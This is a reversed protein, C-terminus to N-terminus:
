NAAVRVREIGTFVTLLTLYFVGYSLVVLSDNVGLGDFLTDDGVSGNLVDDGAGGFALDDGSGSSETDRGACARVADDGAGASVVDDGTGLIMTNNQGNGKLNENSSTGPLSGPDEKSFIINTEDANTNATSAGVLIDALGDGNIDGLGVVADCSRDSQGAGQVVFVSQGFITDLNLSPGIGDLGCFVAYSEGAGGAGNPDGFPAGVLVDAFGDGHLDGADAVAYGSQASVYVGGLRSDETADLHDM